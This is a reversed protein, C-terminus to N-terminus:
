RTQPDLLQFRFVGNQKTGIYFTRGEVAFATAPHPLDAAIQKWTSTQKDIVYIGSNCVGYVMVGDVVIQDMILRNGDVDTVVEWAEGDRSRMGGLDTSVYVTSGAFLIEKFYGFPFALNETVDTWTDGTDLSRFLEGERKGAYVTNTSAALTLGKGEIPSIGGQDELGTYHWATKSPRWRFLKLKYEMFFTNDSLTFTGNTKWEGIVRAQNARFMERIKDADVDNEGAEIIKQVEEFFTGEEFDPVDEVPLLVNGDDSIRFLTVGDSLESNNAYLVGNATELSAKANTKISSISEWSEGGDASKLIEDPTLAYLANELAVLKSIHSNVIGTTFPSWTAGGDTSRRIGSTYIGYFNNADLAVVPFAGFTHPGPNPDTWTEGTGGSKLRATLFETETGPPTEIYIFPTEKPEFLRWPAGNETRLLKMRTRKLERDNTEDSGIKAFSGAGYIVDEESLLLHTAKHTKLFELAERESRAGFVHRNYLHIWHQLYHDQDIITKVAGLTNMLTGHDFNAAVIADRSLQTKMWRYAEAETAETPFVTHHERGAPIIHKAYGDITDWFLILALIGVVIGTKLPTHLFKERFADSTYKSTRLKESATNALFAVFTTTFFATSLCFFFNYRTADRTLALWIVFWAIMAVDIMENKVPTQRRWATLLLCVLTGGLATFFLLNGTAEGAVNDLPERFFTTAIFLIIPITTFLCDGFGEWSYGGLFMMFGSGLTFIWRRRPSQTQLSAVHLMVVLVGLIWCWADRDSFGATSRGIASPLTAMFFGVLSAFLLGFTRYLCLCLVALGICFCITPAYLTWHYLSLNPLLVELVKHTYALFYSWLPLLQTNDRGLPLWRHMDRAPLTGHESITEAQAYYLFADVSLLQEEPIGHVVQLRLWLALLGISLFLAAIGIRILHTRKM